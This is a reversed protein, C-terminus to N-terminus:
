ATLYRERIQPWVNEAFWLVAEVNPKYNMVGVFVCSFDDPPHEDFSSFYDADVGNSVVAIRGHPCFSRFLDREAESVVLLQNCEEALSQELRRLRQGELRYIGSLPFRAARSYDFWKQSDVDILDVWRAVPQHLYPPLLLPAIGSSSALVADYVEDRDWSRIQHQLTACDFLGETVTQGKLLSLLGKVYRRKGAHPIVALRRTVQQLQQLTAASVPEDALCALDVDARSSLYKLVNWTRIRDGRDPPWPVRHTIYLIRPRM